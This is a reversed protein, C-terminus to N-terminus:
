GDLREGCGACFHDMGPHYPHGCKACYRVPNAAEPGPPTQYGGHNAQGGATRAYGIYVAQDAEQQTKYVPNGNADVAYIENHRLPKRCGPCYVFGNPYWPRFDLSRDTYKINTRCYPCQLLYTYGSTWYARKFSM